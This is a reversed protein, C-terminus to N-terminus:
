GCKTKAMGCKTPMCFIKKMRWFRWIHCKQKLVHWMSRVEYRRMELWIELCPEFEVVKAKAHIETAEQRWAKAKNRSLRSFRQKVGRNGVLMKVLSALCFSVCAPCPQVHLQVRLIPACLRVAKSYLHLLAAKVWAVLGYLADSWPLSINFIIDQLLFIRSLFCISLYVTSM